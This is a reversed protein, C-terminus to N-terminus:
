PDRRRLTLYGGAVAVATWLAMIAMGTWPGYSRPFGPDDPPGVVHMILSGAQDPLYQTVARVRPVNGLGQSGLFLLPTLIALALVSSRLMATVGMALLCILVLYLVGGVATRAAEADLAPRYPGLAARAAVFSLGVTALGVLAVPLAAALLKGGYFAGRRPVAVLSARITGSGHESGVALVGFVVVALQAITLGYFAAFLPDFPGIGRLTGNSLATHLTRGLLYTLGVGVVLTLLLSVMTSRLTRLKTWEALVIDM